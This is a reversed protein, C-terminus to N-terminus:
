DNGARIEDQGFSYFFGHEDALDTDDTNRTRKENRGFSYFFDTSM